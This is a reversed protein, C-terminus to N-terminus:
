NLNSVIWATLKAAAANSPCVVVGAMELAQVQRSLCQPDAETGTASAVFILERGSEAALARAKRVAPGLEAAPDPHAGYGIVVDLLIVAVQPDRAEQLLRRIRLDNDIMPHPRGVTFEEEGLDVATHGQSRTSDPLEQAKDLPANSLVPEALMESWIVQAEYCLTGGSFLGRLYRQGPKLGARLETAKTELDVPRATLELGELNALGAALSSAQELTRAMFVKETDRLSYDTALLRDDAGLFCIVAPKGGQIVQTLVKRAVAAAPPKSVLVIVRTAPDDQLAKLGALMMLGGVDEKLDRGGTGIGQTIGVGNKALLTSVEQLGTGAASVIGVPGAPIVNAFGLAVGNLIATGAGPGMLLLGNQSAYQKLAIEDALSVNDSFLLVHLGQHLAEWAEDAAYRGAVSIVAVNAAPNTKVAGRLTKPRFAASETDTQKKQLLKEAEALAGALVPEDSSVAIVLDNASAAEAEATLMGAERLINKNAETAMVVAADQVGKLRTLERAVLMLSVSDVYQSVKILTQVPLTSGGKKEKVSLIHANGLLACM